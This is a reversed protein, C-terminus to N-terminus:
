LFDHDVGCGSFVLSRVRHLRFGTYTPDMFLSGLFLSPIRWTQEIKKEDLEGFNNSLLM